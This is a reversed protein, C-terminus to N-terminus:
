RDSRGTLWGVLGETFPLLACVFSGSTRAFFGISRLSGSCVNESQLIKAEMLGHHCMADRHTQAKDPKQFGRGNPVLTFHSM